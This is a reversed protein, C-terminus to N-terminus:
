QTRVVYPTYLEYISFSTCQTPAIHMFVLLNSKNSKDHGCHWAITLTKYHKMTKVRNREVHKEERREALRKKKKSEERRGEERIEKRYQEAWIGGEEIAIEGREINTTELLNEGGRRGSKEMRYLKRKWTLLRELCHM